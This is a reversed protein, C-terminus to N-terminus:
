FREVDLNNELTEGHKLMNESHKAEGFKVSVIEAALDRPNSRQLARGNAQSDRM